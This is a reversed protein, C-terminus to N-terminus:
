VPPGKGSGGGHVSAFCERGGGASPGRDGDGCVGRGDVRAAFEGDGFEFGEEDLWAPEKQLDVGVGADDAEALWDDFTPGFCDGRGDLLDLGVEDAFVGALDSMVPLRDIAVGEVAAAWHERT